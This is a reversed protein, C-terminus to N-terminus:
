LRNSDRRALEADMADAAAGYFEDFRQLYYGWKNRNSMPEWFIELLARYKQMDTNKGSLTQTLRFGKLYASIVRTHANYRWRTVESIYLTHIPHDAPPLSALRSDYAKQQLRAYLAPEMSGELLNLSPMGEVSLQNATQVAFLIFAEVQNQQFTDFGKARLLLETAPEPLRVEYHTRHRASWYLALLGILALALALTKFVEWRVLWRTWALPYWHYNGDGVLKPPLIEEGVLPPHGVAQLRGFLTKLPGKKKVPRVATTHSAELNHDPHGPM